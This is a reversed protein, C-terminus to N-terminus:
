RIIEPSANNSVYDVQVDGILGATQSYTSAFSGIIRKTKALAFLDVVADEIALPDARDRSRKPYTIIKGPFMKRLNEEEISDDTALFFNVNADEEIASRIASVFLDTGSNEIAPRHDTRRIHVGITNSFQSTVGDILHQIKPVPRFRDFPVDHGYFMHNAEFQICSRNGWQTFDFGERSLKKMEKWRYHRRYRRLKLRRVLNPITRLLGTHKKYQHNLYEIREPLEFLSTYSAGLEDDEWWVFKAPMDLVRSLEITSHLALLRNCLGGHPKLILM